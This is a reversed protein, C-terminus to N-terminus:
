MKDGHDDFKGMQVFSMKQTSESEFHQQEEDYQERQYNTTLSSYEVNGGYVRDLIMYLTVVFITNIVFLWSFEINVLSKARHLAEETSCKVGQHSNEDHIFCGKPILSPTYLMCGLFILWVGQFAISSSRVLSVLFSKPLAIGMLTTMLSVFIILQLIFHYQGEVGMHDASHFHFLLLQQTFAAAAALITLGESAAARPRARDFVVASVAYVLFALSISSHEVNQLHNSPITGDSDFPHHRRPGIFLEMSISASASFMMFYLELHRIKSVPFWPSSIFTNPRLCFLKINNFLHWLGLALFAFGPLVHGARSGM